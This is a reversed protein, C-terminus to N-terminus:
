QKDEKSCYDYVSYPDVIFILRVVSHSETPKAIKTPNSNCPHDADLPLVILVAL